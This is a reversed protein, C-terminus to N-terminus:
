NPRKLIQKRIDKEKLWRNTHTHSDVHGISAGEDTFLPSSSKIFISM